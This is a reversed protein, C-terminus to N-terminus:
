RYLVLHSSRRAMFTAETYSLADAPDFDACSFVNVHATRLHPSFHATISSTTILQVVTFGATVPNHEAFRVVTPEGYATMGIREVLNKVWCTLYERSDILTPNCDHLDAVLELGFRMARPLPSGAYSSTILRDTQIM